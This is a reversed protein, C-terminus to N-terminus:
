IESGKGSLWRFLSLMLMFLPILVASFVVGSLWYGIVPEYVFVLANQIFAWLDASM